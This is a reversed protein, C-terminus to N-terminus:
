YRRQKQKEEFEEMAKLKQATVDLVEEEESEDEDDTATKTNSYIWRGQEEDFYKNVTVSGDTGPAKKTPPQSKKKKKKKTNTVGLEDDSDSLLEAAADDRALEKETMLERPKVWTM